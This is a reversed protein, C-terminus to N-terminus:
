LRSFLLISTILFSALSLYKTVNTGIVATSDIKAKRPEVYILDNQDLYYFPSNIFDAKTVDVRTFTKVGQYDRILLINDRQAFLTLDGASAIADMFTVRDGEFSKNGPSGVEGLVSIKFNLIKFDVVPDKIYLSLKEKLFEKFVSKAYGAVKIKGLVPFEIEGNQDVLYGNLKSNNGNSIMNFPAALEQQICTVTISLLDDNQIQPEYNVAASPASQDGQFYLIKKKSICSTLNILLLLLLFLRKIIKM